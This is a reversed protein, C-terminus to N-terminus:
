TGYCQDFGFSAWHDLQGLSPEATPEQPRPEMVVQWEFVRADEGLKVPQWGARNRVVLNGCNHPKSWISEDYGKSSRITTVAWLNNRSKYRSGLPRDGFLSPASHQADLSTPISLHTM